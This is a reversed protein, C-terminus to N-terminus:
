VGGFWLCRLYNKNNPPYKNPFGLLLNLGKILSVIQKSKLILLIEKHLAILIDGFM